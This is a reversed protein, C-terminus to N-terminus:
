MRSTLRAPGIVKADPIERVIEFVDVFLSGSFECTRFWLCRGRGSRTRRSAVDM